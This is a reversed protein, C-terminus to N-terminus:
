ANAEGIKVCLVGTWGDVEFWDNASVVQYRYGSFEIQDGSNDRTVDAVDISPVYWTVYNSNYDLGMFEYRTRPVPQVQGSTVVVGPAYTTVDIGDDGTTRGTDLFLTVKSHGLMRLAAILLNSGPVSM